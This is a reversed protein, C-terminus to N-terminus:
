DHSIVCRGGVGCLASKCRTLSVASGKQVLSRREGGEAGWGRKREKSKRRGILDKIKNARSAWLEDKIRYLNVLRARVLQHAGDGHNPDHLTM